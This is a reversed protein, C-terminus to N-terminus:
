RNIEAVMQIFKKDFEPIAGCRCLYDEGPHCRRGTYKIGSKTRYWMEPPDDWRFIHGNLARHCERVRNDRRDAWRYREVGADTQQKKNITGVLTSVQDMAYYRAQKKSMGVRNQIEKSVEDVSKGEYLGALVIERIKELVGNSVSYMVESNSASWIGMLAEYAGGSYFEEPIEVGVAAKVIRRWERVSHNNVMQAIRVIWKDMGLKESAKAMYSDVKMLEKSFFARFEVMSDMRVDRTVEAEYAKLIAPLRKKLVHELVRMYRNALRVYEREASVPYAPTLQRDSARVLGSGAGRAPKIIGSHRKVDLVCFAGKRM